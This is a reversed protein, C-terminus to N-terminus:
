AATRLPEPTTSQTAPAAQRPAAPSRPQELRRKLARHKVGAAVAWGLFAVIIVRIFLGEAATSPNDVIDLAWFSTFLVFGAAAATLPDRRAWYSLAVLVAGVGGWLAGMFLLAKATEPMVRSLITAAVAGALQIVGVLLLSTVCTKTLRALPDPGAAREAASPTPVSPASAAAGSASAKATARGCSTCFTGLREQVASCNPCAAPM